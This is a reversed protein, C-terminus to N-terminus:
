QSVWGGDVAVAQGTMYSAASSSMWLVTQAIEEPTGMRGMPAGSVLQDTVEKQGHTFREIMETAIVGPCISNIRIQNKAQELAATKTLGVIAHKSAVYAGSTAFGVLGAISACNTIVGSKQRMMQQIQFKMCSFVSKLNVNMTNDWNQETIEQLPAPVGEIGANNFAVNLRGFKEITKAITREVEEYSSVDCTMFIGQGSNEHIMEVTRRGGDENRDVAVTLGGENAFALATARGIGSAAGTVFCVHNEFRKMSMNM